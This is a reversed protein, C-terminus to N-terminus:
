LIRQTLTRYKIFKQEMRAEPQSRNPGHTQWTLHAALVSSIRPRFPTGVSQINWQVGWCTVAQFSNSPFHSPVYPLGLLVYLCFLVVVLTHGVRESLADKCAVESEIIDRPDNGPPSWLFFPQTKLLSCIVSEFRGYIWSIDLLALLHCFFFVIYWVCLQNCKNLYPVKTSVSSPTELSLMQRKYSSFVMLRQSIPCPSLVGSM